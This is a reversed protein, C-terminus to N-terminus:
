ESGLFAPPFLIRADNFTGGQGFPKWTSGKGWPPRQGLDLGDTTRLSSLVRAIVEGHSCAVVVVGKAVGRLWKLTREGDGPGLEAVSWVELDRQRALPAVTKLCRLRPSSAMGM